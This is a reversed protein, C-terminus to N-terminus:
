KAEERLRWLQYRIESVIKKQSNFVRGKREMNITGDGTHNLYPDESSYGLYSGCKCIYILVRRKKRRYKVKGAFGSVNGKTVVGCEPCWIFVSEKAIPPLMSM